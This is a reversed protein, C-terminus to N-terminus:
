TRQQTAAIVGLAILVMGGVASEIRRARRTRLRGAVWGACLVWAGDSVVALTLFIAGLALVQPWASGRTRDVFQPLIAVFFIASKPNLLNVIFGQRFLRRHSTTAGDGPAVNAVSEGVFLRRAGMGILYAAGAYKMLAFATASSAIIASLGAAAFLVHVAGASQIGLMAAMGGRRGAAISQTVVYFVSPGPVVLLALAAVIFVGLTATTPM